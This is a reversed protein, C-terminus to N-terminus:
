SEEGLLPKLAEELDPLLRTYYGPQVRRVIGKRDILFLTPLADVGCLEKVDDTGYTFTYTYHHERAYDVAWEKTRSRESTDAGIVVLGRGGYKTHLEQLVPAVRQCPGCWTAWFDILVVKGKLSESTIPQEEIDIMRFSPMPRGLLAEPGLLADAFPAAQRPASRAPEDSRSCGALLAVLSFLIGIRAAM